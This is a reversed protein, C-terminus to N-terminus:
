PKLKCLQPFGSRGNRIRCHMATTCWQGQVAEESNRSGVWLGDMEVVAVMMGGDVAEGGWRGGGGRGRVADGATM